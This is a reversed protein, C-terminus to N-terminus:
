GAAVFDEVAQRAADRAQERAAQEARLRALESEDADLVGVYRKQLDSGAGVAGLLNRIRSQDAIVQEIRAGIQAFAREAEAQRARLAGLKELRARTEADLGGSRAYTALAAGDIGALAVARTQTMEQVIALNQGDGAPVDFGLRLRGDAEAVALGPPEVVHGGALKDTLVLLRRPADTKIRYAARRRTVDDLTLLGKAIRLRATAVTASDDEEVTTKQDLAFSMLRTEGAPTAALRADGLYAAGNAGNEYITVIGPPLGTDRDNVFEVASLPHRRDLRPDYLAVRRLKADGDIIPLSLLRGDGLSVPSPLHFAVQTVSDQAAIAQAGAALSLADAVPAPSAAFTAAAGVVSPMDARQARAQKQFAPKPTEAERRVFGQDADPALREGLDVPANPRDIMYARYLEQRFAVPRGSVLTLDVDKWDQGSLNELTAWAQLVGKKADPAPDLLLRYSTKWVPAAALYAVHLARAGKGRAALRLVRFDKAGGAAVKALAQAIQERLRPDAFKVSEADELVFQRLGEEGMVTVRHQTLSVNANVGTATEESVGVLRGAIKTPGGVEIEAGQLARLLDPASALAQRDFPLADFARALPEDLPTDLGGVGGHDDFVVLSKLIDDIQSRPAKLELTADGDVQVEFEYLGLGGTSLVVRKLALESAGAAGSWAAAVLCIRAMWAM